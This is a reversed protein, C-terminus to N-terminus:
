SFLWKGQIIGRIVDQINPTSSQDSAIIFDKLHKSGKNFNNDIIRSLFKREMKEYDILTDLFMAVGLLGQFSFERERLDNTENLQGKVNSINKQLNHYVSSNSLHENDKM